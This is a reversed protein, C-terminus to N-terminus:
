EETMTLKNIGSQEESLSGTAHALAVLAIYMENEASVLTSNATAQSAQSSLLFTIDKLGANYSDLAQSYAENASDLAARAFVQKKLASKLSYFSNWVDTGAALEAGRLQARLAEQNALAEQKKNVNLFGDFVTWSLGLYGLYTYSDTDTLADNEFRNWTKDAQGGATLTPWYDSNAAKVAYEAARLAAQAAAVDARRALSRDIISSIREETLNTVSPMAQEPPAIELPTDAPLGLTSALAGQATKVMALADELKYLAQEHDTQAQLVDLHIGLGAEERAQTAELTKASSDVTSQAALVAAQASYLNYYANQVDRLLDQLTQNYQYNYSLLEDIGANVRASRGGLDLLLWSISADPGYQTLSSAEGLTNNDSRGAKYAANASLSPYYASRAQQMRAESQRAQAWSNQLTPNALLAQDVLEALTLTGTTSLTQARIAAWDEQDARTEAWEPAVWSRGAEPPTTPTHCATILSTLGVVSLWLGSAKITRNKM